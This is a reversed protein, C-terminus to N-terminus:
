GGLFDDIWERRLVIKAGVRTSRVRRSAILERMKRPSCCAYAAAEPVTLNVPPNRRIESAVTDALRYKSPEPSSTPLVPQEM